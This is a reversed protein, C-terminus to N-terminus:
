SLCMTGLGIDGAQIYFREKFEVNELDQEMKGVTRNRKEWQEVTLRQYCGNKGTNPNYKCLYIPPSCNSCAICNYIEKVFNHQHM